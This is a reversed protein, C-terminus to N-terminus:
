IAVCWVIGQMTPAAASIQVRTVPKPPWRGLWALSCGCVFWESLGFFYFRGGCVGKSSVFLVTEEMCWFCVGEFISIVVERFGAWVILVNQM